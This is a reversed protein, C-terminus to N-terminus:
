LQILNDRSDSNDLRMKCFKHLFRCSYLLWLQRSAYIKYVWQIRLFAFTLDRAQCVVLPAIGGRRGKNMWVLHPTLIRVVGACNAVARQNAFCTSSDSSLCQHAWSSSSQYIETSRSGRPVLSIVGLLVVWSASFIGVFAGSPKATDYIVRTYNQQIARRVM